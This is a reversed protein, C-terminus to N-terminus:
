DRNPGPNGSKALREPSQQESLPRDAAATAGTMDASYAIKAVARSQELYAEMAEKRRASMLYQRIMPKARDASIPAEQVETVTMLLVKADPQEIMLFDGVAANAISTLRDLPLQEPALSIFQTEYALGHKDLLDRIQETGHAKDLESRIGATIDVKPVAVATVRYIRRNAFLIPNKRYYDDIELATPPARAYLNREAFAQALVQRRAREMAQVVAPQRDLKTKLADQVLLEEAVLSEVAQKAVAPTVEEIGSSSLAQNLQNVTIEHGNVTAVVQSSKTGSASGGGCGAVAISFSGVMAARLLAAHAWCMTKL